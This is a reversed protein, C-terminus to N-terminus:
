SRQYLGVLEASDLQHEKAKNEINDKTVGELKEVDLAWVTFFYRHTGSPPCPGGYHTQGFDNTIEKAGSPLTAGEELETISAPINIMVWHVWRGSPADPDICALAFSKTNEPFGNWQLHPTIDKGDGTFKTPIDKMNQFNRSQLIM